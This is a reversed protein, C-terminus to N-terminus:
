LSIYFYILIYLYFLINFYFLIDIYVYQFLPHNIRPLKAPKSERGTSQFVIFVM